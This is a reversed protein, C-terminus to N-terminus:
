PKYWRSSFVRGLRQQMASLPGSNKLLLYDHHLTIVCQCFWFELVNIFIFKGSSNEFNWFQKSRLWYSLDSFGGCGTILLSLIYCVSLLRKPSIMNGSKERIQSVKRLNEPFPCENELDQRIKWNRPHSPIMYITSTTNWNM